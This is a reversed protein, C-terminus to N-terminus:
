AAKGFRGLLDLLKDVDEPKRPDGSIEIDLTGATVRLHFRWQEDLVPKEVKSAKIAAQYESVTAFRQGKFRGKTMTRPFTMTAM